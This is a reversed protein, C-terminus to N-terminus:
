SPCRRRSPAGPRVPGRLAHDEARLRSPTRAQRRVRANRVARDGSDHRRTLPRCRSAAAAGPTAGGRSSASPRISSQATSWRTHGVRFEYANFGFLAFDDESMGPPLPLLFHRDSDSARELRFMADLGARDNSSAKTITRVFEPDIQLPQPPPQPMSEPPDYLLPDPANAVVRAFLRFEPEVPETLEIWLARARETTSSYADDHDYPSLALGASRLEVMQSPPRAIPLTLAFTSAAANAEEAGSTENVDAFDQLNPAVRWARHLVDPIGGSPISPDVADFFVIRTHARKQPDPPVSDAAAAAGLVRPVTVSGLPEFLVHAANSVTFGAPSIGDWTWDRGLELTLAVIWNHRLEAFSTFTLSSAAPDLTHRLAKSAGFVVREGPRARLTLGDSALRLTQALYGVPDPLEDDSVTEDPPRFLFAMAPEIGAVPTLLSPEDNAPARVAVDAVLGELEGPGYYGAKSEVLARVRIRVDRATPILLPGINPQSLATADAEDM